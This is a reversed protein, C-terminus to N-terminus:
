KGRSLKKGRQRSFASLDMNYKDTGYDVQDTVVEGYKDTSISIAPSAVYRSLILLAVAPLYSVPERDATLNNMVAYVLGAVSLQSIYDLKLAFLGIEIEDDVPLDYEGSVADYDLQSDGSKDLRRRWMVSQLSPFWLFTYLENAMRRVKLSLDEEQTPLSKMENKM